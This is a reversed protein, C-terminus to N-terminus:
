KKWESSLWIVATGDRSGTLIQRGDDDSSFMVSTVEETHRNLSLIEKGKGDSKAQDAEWLKASQDRSGTLIRTGDPSAAVSTVRATHGRFEILRKGTSVDWLAATNDESGTILEMGKPMFAACTVGWKHGSFERVFKGDDARWVRATKDNSATVILTGDPSFSASSVRDTHGILKHVVTGSEVNWLIATKDDSATLLRSGDNSFAVSNVSGTHVGEYKRVVQGTAVDWVKASNDWSGTAIRKGDPSYCASAVTGHQSFSMRENGTSAEWLRAEGGGVTLIEDSGPQFAVSWLLGGRKKLDILPGLQGDRQPKQVERNAAVDWFHVTRNKSDAAVLRQGDESVSLSYVGGEFPGITHIVEAKEADWIRVYRDTCSTVVQNLEPVVQMAIVSNPHKLVLREIEKGTSIDWQGVSNDISATVVRNGDKLFSIASIKKTHGKLKWIVKRKELSWVLVNGKLDGTVLMSDDPSFAIANVEAAHGSLPELQSGKNSEWSKQVDWLRVLNDNGGTAIWQQNKSLAIAASRGTQELRAVQGGTTVDWLRATNDVAATILRRGDPFFIASSALYSHGETFESEVKGNSANWIRASRDRSATVIHRRDPSYSADLVADAHGDLVLGRLTRLEQYDDINWERVSKDHSASLLKKDDPLFLAATVEEGHGRIKGENRFSTLPTGTVFDWVRITADLGCSVLSKGDSSFKVSRVAGNHGELSRYNALPIVQPPTKVQSVPKISSSLTSLQKFDYPLIEEPRWILIKGDYGASVVFKGDPSFIASYVPGKHGAFPPLTKIIKKTLNDIQYVVATGDQGTSVVRTEDPSFAVSYVWLSHGKFEILRTGTEVDWLAATKDLSSTLLQKGDKSFAVSLVAKTHGEFARIPKGSECDWIQAFKGAKNSGTALFKGDPSFAVSHVYDCYHQLPPLKEKGTTLDWIRATGNWGGTAFLDGRSTIALADVPDVADFAQTNQSCLYSLRGWEWNRLEPQCNKLVERAADFANRDIQSAALGIKSIYAEYEAKKQEEIAKDKNAIAIEKAKEEEIKANEAKTKENEALDRAEDAIKQQKVAFDAREKAIDRQENAIDRQKATKKQEISILITAGAVILFVAAALGSALRRLLVFRRLKAKREKQAALLEKHLSAHDPNSKDVLSLSLDLDGKQFATQAYSLKADALGAIAGKNGDWLEIAQQFGFVARSFNEYDQTESAKKLDDSAHTSLLVSESHSQYDRIAAQFSKVDQYRDEPNTQMARMAIDVLEGKKDTPTIENRAAAMLCKMANKAVHPPGGTLIEYLMAGLLYVDSAPGIREIPGTTMEPAMYAPTGGMTNTEVISRSKRFAKSPQALGWDMVLVEGFEGLMVNEPKLDRHVVGRAHAFGVADAIKMLIELNEPISKQKIIKLWPTGQVKKMSYFLAGESNAGVDYIPVINPHDLEGTVVAEALFKARQKQNDASKAKLMKVAVNRDISTQRADYVVGMGGEGLVKLLEYEPDEERLRQVGTDGPIVDSFSKTKIVLTQQQKSSSDKKQSGGKMQTPITPSAHTRSNPPNPDAEELSGWLSEVTKLMGEPVDDSVYTQDPDGDDNSFQNTEVVLTKMHDELPVQKPLHGPLEEVVITKQDDEDEKERGSGDDTDLIEEPAEASIYTAGIDGSGDDADGHDFHTDPRQADQQIVSEAVTFNNDSISEDDAVSPADSESIASVFGSEITRDPFDDSLYTASSSGDGGDNNGSVDDLDSIPKSSDVAGPDSSSVQSPARVQKIFVDRSDGFNSSKDGATLRQNCHSCVGGILDNGKVQKGCHPCKIM